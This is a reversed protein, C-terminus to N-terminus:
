PLACCMRAGSARACAIPSATARVRRVTSCSFCRPSSQAITPPAPVPVKACSAALPTYV